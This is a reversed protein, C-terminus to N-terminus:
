VLQLLLGTRREIPGHITWLVDQTSNGPNAQQGGHREEIRGGEAPCRSSEPQRPAQHPRNRRQLLHQLVVAVGEPGNVSVAQLTSSPSPASCRVYQRLRGKRSRGM